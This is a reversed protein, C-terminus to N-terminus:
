YQKVQPGDGRRKHFPTRPNMHLSINRASHDHGVYFSEALLFLLSFTSHFPSDTTSMFHSGTCFSLSPFLPQLQMSSWFALACNEKFYLFYHPGMDSAIRLAPRASGILLVASGVGGIVHPIASGIPSVAAAGSCWYFSDAPGM